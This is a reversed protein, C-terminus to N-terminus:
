LQDTVGGPARNMGARPQCISPDVRNDRAAPAAARNKLRNLARVESRSADGMVPCGPFAGDQTTCGLMLAAGVVRLALSPWMLLM